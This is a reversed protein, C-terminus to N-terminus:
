DHIEIERPARRSFQIITYRDTNYPIKLYRVYMPIKNKGYVDWKTKLQEALDNLYDLM